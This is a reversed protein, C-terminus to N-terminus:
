PHPREIRASDAVGYAGTTVVVEGARLGDTIEVVGEARGGAAVPRNHAVGESDVVFVHFGEGDPVLAAVPIVIARPHTAVAIRGFVSEGIRLLRVTRVLRARAAVARSASDVAAAVDSIRASGLSDGGAAEGAALRVANGPRVRAADEPTLAFVVDLAAPDVVAVLPQTLDV